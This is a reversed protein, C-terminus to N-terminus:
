EGSCRHKKQTKKQPMESICSAQLHHMVSWFYNLVIDCLLSLYHTPLFLLTGVPSVSTLSICVNSFLKFSM